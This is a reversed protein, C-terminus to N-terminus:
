LNAAEAGVLSCIREEWGVLAKQMEPMYTSRNYIASVGSIEGGAHNLIREIIHPQVGLQAMGTACTRRLDHLTWGRIGSAEDMRAKPKNWYNWRKGFLYEGPHKEADLIGKARGALPLVHERKNKTFSSPYVICEDRIWAKRLHGIENRRQGTLLLLLVITKFDKTLRDSTPALLHQVLSRLEDESLVRERKSMPAPAELVAVPSTPLYGRAVCWNFFMKLVVLAKNAAQPTAVLKDLIQTVDVVTIKSLAYGGLIRGWKNRLIVEWERAVAPRNKVALQKVVYIDLADKFTVATHALTGLADRALAQRAMERAQALSIVPYRGLTHKRRSKGVLVVFTKAGGKSVRLVFNRLVDDRYEDQGEVPPQVSDLFKITLNAM